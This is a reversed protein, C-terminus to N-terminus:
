LMRIKKEVEERKEQISNDSKKDYQWSGVTPGVVGILGGITGGIGGALYDGAFSLSEVALYSM